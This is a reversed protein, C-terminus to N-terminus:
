AADSRFEAQQKLLDKEKRNMFSFHGPWLGM